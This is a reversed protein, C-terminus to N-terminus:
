RSAEARSDLPSRGLEKRLEMIGQRKLRAVRGGETNQPIELGSAPVQTGRATVVPARQRKVGQIGAKLLQGPDAFAATRPKPTGGAARPSVADRAGSGM